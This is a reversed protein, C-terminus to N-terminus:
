ERTLYYRKYKEYCIFMVINWSTIRFFQPLAGRYFALPGERKLTKWICDLAGTYEAEIGAKSKKMNMIRTKVVDIPNGALTGATGAAAGCVFHTITNDPLKLKELLFQLNLHLRPLFFQVVTAGFLTKLFCRVERAVDYTALEAACIISNRAINPMVGAWLRHFGEEAVIKRYADIAGKYRPQVGKELRGEAQLRIKVVDTPNAIAIGITGAALGSAIKAPLTTTAADGQFVSRIREYLSLRLSAFVMQRQIGATTGKWFALIGEEAYIKRMALPM